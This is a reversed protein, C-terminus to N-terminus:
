TAIDQLLSCYSTFAQLLGCYGAIAQLLRAQTGKGLRAGIAGSFGFLVPDISCRTLARDPPHTPQPWSGEGGRNVAGPVFHSSCGCVHMLSQGM